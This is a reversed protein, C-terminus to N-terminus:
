LIAFSTKATLWSPFAVSENVARALPHCAAEFKSLRARNGLLTYKQARAQHITNVAILYDSHSM